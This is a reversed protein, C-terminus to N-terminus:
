TLFGHQVGIQSLQRIGQIREVLLHGLFQRRLLPEVHADGELMGQHVRHVLPNGRTLLRDVEVHAGLDVEVVGLLGQLRRLGLKGGILALQDFDVRRQFLNLALFRLGNRLEDGVVLVLEGLSRALCVLRTLREGLRRRSKGACFEVRRDIADNLLRGDGGDPLNHRGLLKGDDRRGSAFKL